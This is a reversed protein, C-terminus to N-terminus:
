SVILSLKYNSLRCGWIVKVHVLNWRFTTSNLTMLLLLFSVIVRNECTKFSLSLSLSFCTLYDERNTELTSFKACCSQTWTPVSIEAFKVVQDLKACIGAGEWGWRERERVCTLHLSFPPITHSLFHTRNPNNVPEWTDTYVNGGGPMTTFLIKAWLPDNLCCDWLM